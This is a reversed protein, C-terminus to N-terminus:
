GAFDCYLGVVIRDLFSLIIRGFDQGTFVCYLGTWCHLLIIRDLLTM